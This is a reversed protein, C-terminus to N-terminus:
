SISFRGKIANFNSQIESATLVRNYIKMAPLEGNFWFTNNQRAGIKWTGSWAAAPLTPTHSDEAVGNVYITGNTPSKSMVVHYYNASNLVTSSTYDDASSDAIEVFRAKITGNSNVTFFHDIGVSAPSIFIPSNGYSNVRIIIEISFSTGVGPDSIAFQDNTGDFTM